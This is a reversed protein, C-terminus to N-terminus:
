RLILRKRRESDNETPEEKYRPPIENIGVIRVQNAATRSEAGWFAVMKQLHDFIQSRKEETQAVKYDIYRSSDALLQRFALYVATNYDDSARTFLRNLEDDTYDTDGIDARFDALQDATLAM